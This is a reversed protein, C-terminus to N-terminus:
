FSGRAAVGVEATGGYASVGFVPPSSAREDLDGSPSPAAFFLTIGVATIVAGGIIFGEALHGNLQTSEAAARGVPSCYSTDRAAAVCSEEITSKEGLTAGGFGFGIGMAAIGAIGTVLGGIRQGNWYRVIETPASGGLEVRSESLKKRDRPAERFIKELDLVVERHEAAKLDVTRSYLVDDGELVLV